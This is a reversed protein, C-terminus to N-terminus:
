FPSEAALRKRADEVEPIGPDADKWLDLFKRYQERAKDKQGQKEYIKGLMYFSKAYIDGYAIRGTTLSIIKEYEGLAKELDGSQYYALALSDIFLAHNDGWSSQQHPLLALADDFHKIAQANNKRKLEIEGLLLYYLRMEKKNMGQKILERLEDATRQTEGLAGMEIYAAGKFYLSYRQFRLSECETASNWAEECEKLAKEPNGSGLLTYALNIHYASEQEKEGQIRAQELARKFQEKSEDFKGQSLYIHGLLWAGLTHVRNDEKELYPQIEKEAKM